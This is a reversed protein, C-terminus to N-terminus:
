WMSENLTTNIEALQTFGEKLKDVREAHFGTRPILPLNEM